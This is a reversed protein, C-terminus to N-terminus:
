APRRRRAVPPLTPGAPAPDPGAPGAPHTQEHDPMRGPGYCDPGTPTDGTHRGTDVFGRRDPVPRGDGGQPALEGPVGPVSSVTKPTGDVVAVAGLPAGPTELAGGRGGAPPRARDGPARRSDPWWPWPTFPAAPGHGHHGPTSAGRWDRGAPGDLEGPGHGHHGPGIEPAPPNVRPPM